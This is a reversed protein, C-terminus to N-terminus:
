GGTVNASTVVPMHGESRPKQVRAIVTAKTDVAHRLVAQMSASFCVLPGYTTGDGVIELVLMPGTKATRDADVVRVTGQVMEPVDAGSLRAPQRHRPTPAPQAAQPRRMAGFSEAFIGDFIDGFGQAQATQAMGTPRMSPVNLARQAIETWTLGQAKLMRTAARFANVAEGDHEAAAADMMGITALLREHPSTAM